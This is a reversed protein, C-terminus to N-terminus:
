RKLDDLALNLALVNVRSEGFLGLQPGETAHVIVPGERRDAVTDILLPLAAIHDLHSHTIFVHDIRELEDLSLEGVGTGADILIDHDVLM